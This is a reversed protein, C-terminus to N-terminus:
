TDYSTQKHNKTGEYLRKVDMNFHKAIRKVLKPSVDIDDREIKYLRQESISLSEALETRSLGANERLMQIKQGLTYEASRMICNQRLFDKLETNDASKYFEILTDLFQVKKEVPIMFLGKGNQILMANCALSAARKNGDLFFQGRALYCYLELAADEKDPNNCIKDLDQDIVEPKPPLEPYYAVEGNKGMVCIPDNYESRICGANIVTFKGSIRHLQKVYELDIKDSINDFIYKWAKKLDNVFCADDYDIGNAEGQEYITATQPFTMALGEIQVSSYINEVIYKKAMLVNKEVNMDM